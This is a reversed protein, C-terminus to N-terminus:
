GPGSRAVEQGGPDITVVVEGRAVVFMSAGQDGQRVIVDGAEYLHRTATGALRQHGEESLAQFIPVARLTAEGAAGVASSAAKEPRSIEVQMPFPIEIDHRRFAYYIASRIRDRLREDAAFDTTWVRIRYTVASAAFDVILVEPTRSASILPE